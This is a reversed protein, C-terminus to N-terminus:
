EVHFHIHCEELGESCISLVGEGKIGKTKVFTGAAGGRLSITKPGILEITGTTKLVLPDQYYHLRNGNQDLATIRVLAVDYTEEEKLQTSSIKYELYPKIVPSKVIEKQLKGDKIAVFRYCISNGGWGGAYEYYMSVARQMDIHNKLLLYAMKLKYRLPLHSPGYEQIAKILKKFGEASQHRINEKKELLEGIFDDILVPPQPLNKYRKRDPYFEKVFLDGKYLRISDANTFAYVEGLKGAPHEGIDMTSSIECIPHTNSQSAYVAAAPKPNRFMDMVGHYCIRDGSGFDKHTNYDFMCWGFGGAMNEQEFLSDLVRAHRLAHQLRHEEDDYAKTPFMHGNFESVLYPVNSSTVDKKRELGKTKGNHLFDNYTYVDELLHSKKIFRVGGTQRTPDLKHAIRNTETYFADDDQSENIRVGWLIISPHNRYQIVMERVHECARSKWEDDGIHQWGPIETFVLLGLEDCRNIFHRSQPYHSTRVANVGLEYKLIEADLAQMRKPMAYGVYPYSQHRNLGLLKLKRHNLYFGDKKFECTRFGFRIETEDLLTDQSYLALKLYYLNPHDIDWLNVGSVLFSHELSSHTATFQNSCILRKEGDEVKLRLIHVKNNVEGSLSVQLRVIHKGNMADETMIFADEIATPEKIEIYAERYIGGYTMYDIVNGFPPLNSSERSDVEVALTNEKDYFLETSLNVTFATYGGYHTTLKKGNLYVTAVHAVGEFTLLIQKNRWGPEAKFKRRYCSVFQYINEDFYNYPTVVNAHPLRVEELGHDDYDPQLM